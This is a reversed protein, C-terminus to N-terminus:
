GMWTQWDPDQRTKHYISTSLMKNITLEDKQCKAPWRIPYVHPNGLVHRPPFSRCIDASLLVAMAPDFFEAASVSM